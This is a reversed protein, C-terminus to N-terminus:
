KGMEGKNTCWNENIGRNNRLSEDLKRSKWIIWEIKEMRGILKYLFAHDSAELKRLSDM